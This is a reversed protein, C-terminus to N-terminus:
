RAGGQIQAPASLREIMPEMDLELILKRKVKEPWPQKGRLWRNLQALNVGLKAALQWQFDRKGRAGLGVEGKGAEQFNRREHHHGHSEGNNFYFFRAFFFSKVAEAGAGMYRKRFSPQTHTALHSAALIQAPDATRTPFFGVGTSFLTANKICHTFSIRLEFDKVGCPLRPRGAKEINEELADGM